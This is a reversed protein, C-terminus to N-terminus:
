LVMFGPNRAVRVSVMPRLGCVDEVYRDAGDATRGAVLWDRQQHATVNNFAVMTPQRNTARVFAITDCGIAEVFEERTTPWRVVSDAPVMGLDPRTGPELDFVMCVKDVHDDVQRDFEGLDIGPCRAQLEIASVDLGIRYRPAGAVYLVSVTAHDTAVAAALLLRARANPRATVFRAFDRVFTRYLNSVDPM